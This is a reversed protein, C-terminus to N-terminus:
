FRYTVHFAPLFGFQKVVGSREYNDNYDYEEINAKILANVNMLELKYELSTGDAYKYTKGIQIDVDYTNPMRKSYPKGYLPRRYTKGEYEYPETGVIPTYPRGSSYAVRTSVRWNNDFTYNAHLQLTHPIDGEFRYMKTSETNLQRKANVYTYAFMLNLNELNKSYTIDMGYAEGEGIAEYKTREDSIALNKFTKYYPELELTSSDAFKTKLNLTYHTAVESTNIAPNGFGDIVYTEEPFQSYRGIALALSTNETLDRVYAFRPDVETGFNQFDSKTIRVGYRFHDRPTIDWIDQAFLTYTGAKFTKDSDIVEKDTILTDFDDSSPPETIHAKLPARTHYYEFGVLPKHNPMHFVTEHYIGTRNLSMDLYYDVDFLEVNEKQYFYSLLTMSTFKETEYYWRAGVTTFELETDIKGNAVPDKNKDITTHLKMEDKAHIVELSFTHENLHHTLILQADHFRPFLTFTTKKSPDEDDKDLEDMVKDAILDFYSRRAGLFLSTNEGLKMDYAFDADYLGLHIHGKNSGTPYKPTVDVVAGMADYTTDFGGLYADIQDTAEPAIVSHLGGLHFVYGLPLHNISYRTERPKSGHIYIENANDNSTSVVGALSQLAKLPDGNSGAVELAQQTTMQKQSPASPMYGVKEVVEEKESAGSVDIPQLVVTEAVVLSITLPVM